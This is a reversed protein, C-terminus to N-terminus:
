TKGQDIVANTFVKHQLYTKVNDDMGPWEALIDHGITREQVVRAHTEWPWEGNIYQGFFLVVVLTMVFTVAANRLFFHRVTKNVRNIVELSMRELLDYSKGATIKLQEINKKEHVDLETKMEEYRMICEQLKQLITQLKANDQPNLSGPPIDM